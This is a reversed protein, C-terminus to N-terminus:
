QPAGSVTGAPILGDTLLRTYIQKALSNVSFNGTNLAHILTAGSPTTFADYTKSQLVGASNSWDISVTQDTFNVFLRRLTQATIPPQAIPTTLTVSEQARPAAFAYLTLAALTAALLMLRRM